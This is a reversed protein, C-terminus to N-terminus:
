PSYHLDSNRQQCDELSDELGRVLQGHMGSEAQCHQLNGQLKDMQPQLDRNQDQLKKIMENQASIQGRMKVLEGALVNFLLLLGFFVLATLSCPRQLLRSIVVSQMRRAAPLM